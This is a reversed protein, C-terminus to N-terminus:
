SGAICARWGRARGRRPRRGDIVTIAPGDIITVARLARKGALMEYLVCGFAWVDTRRDVEEGRAQEPSMYPATGVVAGAESAPSTGTSVQSNVPGDEGVAKALGFDLLKVQDKPTLAVNGPKLDRHLVGKEHAAELGEAIQRALELAERVGLPGLRLRNALTPGEVLEMVLVTAGDTEELGFLTAVHPHSLSALIRAEKRLRALRSPTAALAEPLTKLAVERGLRTDKARYVEGMGGAGLPAVIEYPGLRTGAQLM